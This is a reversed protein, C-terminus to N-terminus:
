VYLSLSLFLYLYVEVNGYIVISLFQSEIYNLSFMSVASRSQSLSLFESIPSCTIRCFFLELCLFSSIQIVFISSRIMKGFGKQVILSLSFSLKMSLSLNHFVYLFLFLKFSLSPVLPIFLVSSLSLVISISCLTCVFMSCDLSVCVFFREVV